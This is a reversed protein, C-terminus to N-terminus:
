AVAGVVGAFRRPLRTALMGSDVARAVAPDVAISAVVPAGVVAAVDDDSLARDQDRVVVVGSPHLPVWAIRRLSMYCARTVLLSRSAEAALQEALSREPSQWGPRLLTGCDVVVPRRSAALVQILLSASSPDLPGVGRPLLDLGPVVPVELRGIADPPVSGAAASWEAVGPGSPDSIGLATPLDGALDVLLVSGGGGRRRALSLAVAASFVTTGSGGKLSWCATVM